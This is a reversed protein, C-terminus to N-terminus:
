AMPKNFKATYSDLLNRIMKQYHTHQRKASHLFFEVSTRSLSMTVKINDEKFVLEDPPPLFDRVVRAEIPENTYTIKQKM